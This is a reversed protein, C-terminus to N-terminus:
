SLLLQDRREVPDSRRLLRRPRGIKRYHAVVQRPRATRYTVGRCVPVFIIPEAAREDVEIVEAFFMHGRKDIKVVDGPEIRAARM